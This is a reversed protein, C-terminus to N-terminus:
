EDEIEGMQVLGQGTFTELSRVVQLREVPVNTKIEVLHISSDHYAPNNLVVTKEWVNLTIREIRSPLVRGNGPSVVRIGHETLSQYDGRRISDEVKDYFDQSDNRGDSYCVATQVAEM